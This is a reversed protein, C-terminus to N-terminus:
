RLPLQYLIRGTSLDVLSLNGATQDAVILHQADGWALAAPAPFSGPPAIAHAQAAAGTLAFAVVQRRTSDAVYLQRATGDLLLAQPTGVTGIRSVAHNLLNMAYVAGQSQDGIYLRQGASDIALAGLRTSGTVEAVFHPAAKSDPFIAYVEPTDGSTFYVTQRAPDFTLGAVVHSTSWTNVLRGATTFEQVRGVVAHGTSFSSGIFLMPQGGIAGYAMDTVIGQTQTSFRGAVSGSNLSLNVALVTGDAGLVFVSGNDPRVASVPHVAAQLAIGAGFVLAASLFRTVRKM